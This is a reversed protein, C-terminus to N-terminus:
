RLDCIDDDRGMARTREWTIGLPPNELMLRNEM